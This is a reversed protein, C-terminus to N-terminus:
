CRMIRIKVTFNSVMELYHYVNLFKESVSQSLLMLFKNFKWNNNVMVNSRFFFTYWLADGFFVNELKAPDAVKM